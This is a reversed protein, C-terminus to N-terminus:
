PQYDNNNFQIYQQNRKDMNSYVVNMQHSLNRRVKCGRAWAQIKIILRTHQVAFTLLRNLEQKNLAEKNTERLNTSM